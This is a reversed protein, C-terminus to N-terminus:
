SETSIVWYYRYSSANFINQVHPTSFHLNEPKSMAMSFWPQVRVDMGEKVTSVPAASVLSGDRKFLAFSILNDKNAEYLLSMESDLSDKTLNKDKITDYYM